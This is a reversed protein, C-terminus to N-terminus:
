TPNQCSDIVDVDILAPHLSGLLLVLAVVDLVGPLREEGVVRLLSSSMPAAITLSAALAM